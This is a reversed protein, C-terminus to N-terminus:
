TTPAGQKRWGGIQSGVEVLLGAGHRYREAPIVHLEFCLRWLHRVIALKNNAYDLTPLKERQYAAQTLASLIDLLTNELREGLTFRRNRPFKDIHPIMWLLLKHTDEVVKPLPQAKQRQM